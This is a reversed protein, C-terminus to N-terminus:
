SDGHFLLDIDVARPGFRQGPVRGLEAELRKVLGLLELPALTARMSLAMNLFPPQDLVYMPASQYVSSVAGLRLEASLAAVARRLQEACDGLNSGLGLLIEIM